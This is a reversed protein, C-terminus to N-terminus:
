FTVNLNLGYRKTSPAGGTEVGQTGAGVVSNIDPDFNTYKPVNPALYWLNRGSLSITVNSLKLKSVWRKPLSYGLTIERLRYITGDFVAYEFAGNTAFSAGTGQTFFLDNTTVRTQNPVTKGGVLMPTYRNLGNPGPVPTPNGYVGTIVRNKERDETDKTVGRGLMSSITESYFDGGKTMDWLISLEIGKFNFNNTIGIKYDANPNGVMGPNPDLFPMGSSPNILLQGDDTRASFSGRLYGYPFGAEIYNFGGIIDRTLGPILREVTNINRTFIARVDWQFNKLIVPKIDLAAEWGTNRIEGLNTFFSSYGTTQPLGISYILDTSRKDYWTLELGLRGKFFRMDSGIELETTFEPTLNPDYSSGGRTALPQGLFGAANLGFIPQGNHPGADNGVRAYGARLKGYDLWNSKLGFADSWVLSGSVGPYFYRANKYPLTSTLDMRSTINLFAFNKYGLSADGFVGVLRRKSRTDGSFTQRRTNTLNFLGPIVFDVGYVQQNRSTRENVESGINVDLTFNEFIKPNFVAVIKANIEQTRNVVETLTGLLNDASGLSSKDIIQDRYLAYNNVGGNFDVRARKSFKYSARVNAVIRDDISTIVNHYAGWVPNTYQGDNFGIQRGARDESPWGVIDWNRAMTYTRGWQSIFSQAQGIFGGIQKSRAYSINAGFTLNGVSTQGGVSINNKTYSSNTIYGKQDVRSLTASFTTNGEGGNLGVSNELLHGTNFLSSVNNPYPKYALRGNPFLEPYSAFMTAWTTAPISDIGSASTGIVNGSADYIVGKGFKAGWSGNSSQTRFNAGAGYSNQFEPVDSIKEISYGARYTVNLSKAGKKPAGSKTTILLVGNAARSGYLSAAAAGKLVNMSEIDNPDINNLGSGYTGGGSFPSTTNVLNNSYPVGDVIILPEGGNFSSVGRIQMRTAAGPAGQGARIDVGPVKGALNNLINPESKQLLTGPEVKSVAYGIAKESRKIGMATVVVESLSADPALSVNVTTNTGVTVERTAFSVSSIVLVDGKSASIKYNGQADAAIGANPKGKITVSASPIPAGKEDTVRGSISLVQANVAITVCMALLLSTVIKRM